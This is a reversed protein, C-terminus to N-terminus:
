VRGTGPSRDAGAKGSGGKRLRRETIAQVRRSGSDVHAAVQEKGQDDQVHQQAQPKQADRGRHNGLRGIRPPQRTLDIGFLDGNLREPAASRVKPQIEFM